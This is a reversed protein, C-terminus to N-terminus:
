GAHPSFAGRPISSPALICSVNWACIQAFHAYDLSGVFGNHGV